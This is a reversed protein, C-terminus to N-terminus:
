HIAGGCGWLFRPNCGITLPSDNSLTPVLQGQSILQPDNPQSHHLIVVIPGAHLRSLAWGECGIFPLDVSARRVRRLIVLIADLATAVFAASASSAALRAAAIDAMLQVQAIDAVKATRYLTM